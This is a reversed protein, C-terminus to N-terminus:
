IKRNEDPAIESEVCRNFVYQPFPRFALISVGAEITPASYLRESRPCTGGPSTRITDPWIHQNKRFSTGDNDNIAVDFGIKFGPKAVFV